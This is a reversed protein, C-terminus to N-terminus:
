DDCDDELAQRILAVDATDMWGSIRELAKLAQERASPPVPRRAAALGEWGSRQMLEDCLELEADAGANWGRCAMFGGVLAPKGDPHAELAMRLWETLQEPTPGIPRTM